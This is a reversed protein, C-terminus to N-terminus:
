PVPWTVGQLLFTTLLYVFSKM